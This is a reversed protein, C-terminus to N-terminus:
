KPRLNIINNGEIWTAHWGPQEPEHQRHWRRREFAIPATRRARAYNSGITKTLSKPKQPFPTSLTNINIFTAIEPPNNSSFSISTFIQPRSRYVYVVYTCSTSFNYTHLYKYFEFPHLACGAM